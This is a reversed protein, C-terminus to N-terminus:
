KNDMSIDGKITVCKVLFYRILDYGDKVALEVVATNYILKKYKILINIENSNIALKKM